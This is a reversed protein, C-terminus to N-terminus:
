VCLYIEERMGAALRDGGVNADVRDSGTRRVAVVFRVQPRDAAALPFSGSHFSSAAPEVVVEAVEDVAIWHSTDIGRIGAAAAAGRELYGVEANIM